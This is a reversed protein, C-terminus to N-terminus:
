NRNQINISSEKQGKQQEKMHLTGGGWRGWYGETNTTRSCLWCDARVIWKNNAPMNQALRCMNTQVHFVSERSSSSTEASTTEGKRPGGKGRGGVGVLWAGSCKVFNWRARRGDRRTITNLLPYALIVRRWDHIFSLHNRGSCFSSLPTQPVPQGILSNYSVPVIDGSGNGM